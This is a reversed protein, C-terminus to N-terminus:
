YVVDHLNQKSNWCFFNDIRTAERLVKAFGCKGPILFSYHEWLAKNGTHYRTKNVFGFLHKKAQSAQPIFLITWYLTGLRPKVGFVQLFVAITYLKGLVLRSQTCNRWKYWAYVYRMSIRSRHGKIVRLFCELAHIIRLAIFRRRKKQFELGWQIKV